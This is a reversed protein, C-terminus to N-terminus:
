DDIVVASGSANDDAVAGPAACPQGFGLPVPPELLHFAATDVGPGAIDGGLELVVAPQGGGLAGFTEAFGCHGAVVVALLDLGCFRVSDYKLPALLSYPDGNALAYELARIGGDVNRFFLRAGNVGRTYSADTGGLAKTGIGPNMNGNSLQALLNGM